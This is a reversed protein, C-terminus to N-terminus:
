RGKTLQTLIARAEGSRRDDADANSWFKLCRQLHEMALTTDKRQICLKGLELEVDPWLERTWFGGTRITRVWGM